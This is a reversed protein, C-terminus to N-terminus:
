GLANEFTPNTLKLYGDYGVVGLLESSLVFFHEVDWKSNQDKSEMNQSGHGAEM